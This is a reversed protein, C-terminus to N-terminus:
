APVDPRQGDSGPDGRHNRSNEAHHGRIDAIKRKEIVRKISFYKALLALIHSKITLLCQPYERGDLNLRRKAHLQGSGVLARFMRATKPIHIVVPLQESDLGHVESSAKCDGGSRRPLAARRSGAPFTTDGSFCRQM